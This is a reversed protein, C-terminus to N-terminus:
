TLIRDPSCGERDLQPLQTIENRDRLLQVKPPRRIPQVHRLRRQRARNTLELTLEADHQEHPRRPANLQRRCARDQQLARPPRQSVDIPRDGVHPPRGFRDAIHEGVEIEVAVCTWSAASARPRADQRHEALHPAARRDRTPLSRARPIAARCAQDRRPGRRPPRRWRESERHPPGARHHADRRVNVSLPQGSRVCARAAIWDGADSRM